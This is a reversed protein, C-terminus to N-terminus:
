FNTATFLELINGLQWWVAFLLWNNHGDPMQGGKIDVSCCSSGEVSNHCCTVNSKKGKSASKKKDIWLCTENSLFYETEFKVNQKWTQLTRPFLWEHENMVMRSYTWKRPHLVPVFECDEVEFHQWPNLAFMQIPWRTPVEVRGGGGQGGRCPLSGPGADQSM